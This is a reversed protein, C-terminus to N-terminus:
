VDFQTLYEKCWNRIDKNSHAQKHCDVCLTILNKYKNRDEGRDAEIGFYAHHSELNSNKFCRVCCNNDRLFAEEAEKKVVKRKINATAM